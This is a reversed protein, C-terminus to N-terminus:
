ILNYARITLTELFLTLEMPLGTFPLPWLPGRTCFQFYFLTWITKEQAWKTQPIKSLDSIECIRTNFFDSSTDKAKESKLCNCRIWVIDWHFCTWTSILTLVLSKQSLNLFQYCLLILGSIVPHGPAGAGQCRPADGAGEGAQGGSTPGWLDTKTRKEWQRLQRQQGQTVESVRLVKVGEHASIEAGDGASAGGDLELGACQVKASGPGWAGWSM